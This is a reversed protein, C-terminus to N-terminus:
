AGGGLGGTGASNAGVAFREDETARYDEFQEFSLGYQNDLIELYRQVYKDGYNEDLFHKIRNGIAEEMRLLSKHNNILRVTRAAFADLDLDPIPMAETPKDVSMKESGSPEPAEETPTEEDPGEAPEEEQEVLFSLSRENLSAIAREEEAERISSAEYRLILADIQDDVSDLAKRAKMKTSTMIMSSEPTDINDAEFLLNYIKRKM